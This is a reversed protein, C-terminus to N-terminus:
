PVRGASALRADREDWLRREARGPDDVVATVDGFDM